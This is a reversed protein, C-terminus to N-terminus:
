HPRVGHLIDSPSYVDESSNFHTRLFNHYQDIITSPLHYTNKIKNIILFYKLAPSTCTKINEKVKPTFRLTLVILPYRKHRCAMWYQNGWTGWVGSIGVGHIVSRLWNMRTSASRVHSNRAWIREVLVLPVITELSTLLELLTAANGNTAMTNKASAHETSSIAPVCRSLTQLIHWDELFIKLTYQNRQLLYIPTPSSTSLKLTLSFDESLTLSDPSYATVEDRTSNWHAFGWFSTLFRRVQNLEQQEHLLVSDRTDGDEITRKGAIM